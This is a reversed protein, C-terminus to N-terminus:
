TGPTGHLLEHTLNGWTEMTARANFLLAEQDRPDDLLALRRRAEARHGRDAVVHGDVCYAANDINPIISKARIAKLAPEWFTHTLGELVYAQGWVGIPTQSRATHRLVALYANMARGPSSARVREEPVGLAVLDTLMWDDHGTEESVHERFEKLMEAYIPGKFRAYVEGAFAPDDSAYAAITQGAAALARPTEQICHWVETYVGILHEKSVTGDLMASFIPDRRMRAMFEDIVADLQPVLPSM